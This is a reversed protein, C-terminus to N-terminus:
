VKNIRTKLFDVLSSRFVRWYPKGVSKGGECRFTAVYGADIWGYVVSVDCDLATAVDSVRLLPKIPLLEVLEALRANGPVGSAREDAEIFM